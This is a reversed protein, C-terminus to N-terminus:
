HYGKKACWSKYSHDVVSPVEWGNVESLNVLSADIFSKWEEFM